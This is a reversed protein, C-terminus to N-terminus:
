LIRVMAVVQTKHSQVGTAGNDQVDDDRAEDAATFGWGEHTGRYKQSRPTVRRGSSQTRDILIPTPAASTPVNPENYLVEKITAPRKAVIIRSPLLPFPEAPMSLKTTRTLLIENKKLITTLGHAVVFQEVEEQDEFCLLNTLNNIPYEFYSALIIHLAQKRVAMYYSHLICAQLYTAREATLKFFRVYNDQQICNYMEIAFNIEPTNRVRPTLAALEENFMNSKDLYLLLRYAQFEGENPLHRGLSNNDRYYLGLSTLTKSM